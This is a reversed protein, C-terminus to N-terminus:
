HSSNLRTSKRDTEWDRYAEKKNKELEARRKILDEIRKKSHEEKKPMAEERAQKLKNESVMGIPEGCAKKGVEQLKSLCNTLDLLKKPDVIVEEEIGDMAPDRDSNPHFKNIERRVVKLLDKTSELVWTDIQASDSVYINFRKEDQLAKMKEQFIERQKVWEEKKAIQALWSTTIEHKDGLDRYSPFTIKVNGTDPDVERYGTVYEDRIRQWDIRAVGM